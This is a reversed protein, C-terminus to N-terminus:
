PTVHVYIMGDGFASEQEDPVGVAAPLVGQHIRKMLNQPRFGIRAAKAAKGVPSDPGPIGPLPEEPLPAARRIEQM